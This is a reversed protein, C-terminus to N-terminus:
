GQQKADNDAEHRGIGGPCEEHYREHEKSTGMLQNIGILGELFLAEDPLTAEDDSDGKDNGGEEHQDIFTIGANHSSADVRRLVRQYLCETSIYRIRIGFGGKLRSALPGRAGHEIALAIDKGQGERCLITLRQQSLDLANGM